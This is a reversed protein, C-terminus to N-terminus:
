EPSIVKCLDIAIREFLKIANSRKPSDSKDTSLCDFADQISDLSPLTSSLAERRYYRLIALAEDGDAEELKEIYRLADARQRFRLSLKPSYYNRDYMDKRQGGTRKIRRYVWGDPFLEGAPESPLHEDKEGLTPHGTIALAEQEKTLKQMTAAANESSPSIVESFSHLFDWVRIVEPEYTRSIPPLKADFPVLITSTSNDSRPAQMTRDIKNGVVQEAAKRRRQFEKTLGRVFNMVNRERMSCAEKFLRDDMQNNLLGMRREVREQKKKTDEEEKERRRDTALQENLKRKIGKEQELKSKAESLKAARIAKERKKKQQKQLRIKAELILEQKGQSSSSRNTHFVYSPAFETGPLGEILREMKPLFFTDSKDMM